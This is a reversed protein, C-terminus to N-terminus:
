SNNRRELAHPKIGTERAANQGVKSGRLRVCLVRFLVSLRALDKVLRARTLHGGQALNWELTVVAADVCGWKEDHECARVVRARTIARENLRNPRVDLARKCPDIMIAVDIAVTEHFVSALRFETEDMLTPLVRMIRNEVGVTRRGFSWDSQAFHLAVKVSGLQRRGFQSLEETVICLCAVQRFLRFSQESSEFLTEPTVFKGCVCEREIASLLGTFHSRGVCTMTKESTNRGRLMCTAHRRRECIFSGQGTPSNPRDSRTLRTVIRHRIM